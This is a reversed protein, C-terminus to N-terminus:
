RWEHKPYRRSLESRLRPYHVEWFRPLDDTIQVTRMNPALIDLLLKARGGAINLAESKLDYLDQIRARGKAPLGPRYEIRMRRGKPLMIQAPAMQDVFQRDQPSLQQRAAELCSKAKVARFSYEGACLRRHIAQRDQESYTPLQREPFIEALWRVRAIWAEVDDDWGPLALKGEDLRQAIVEAAVTVDPQQRISEEMLLGLCSLTRRSVVQQLKEDWSIDDSDVWEDPFFEWLWEERCGSALGISLKSSQLGSSAIGERIEAVILLPEDRAVSDKSLEAYRGDALLCLLTGADRRKAIRDPFARLLCQLFAIERGEEDRTPWSARQALRSYEGADRWVDRAAGAHIGLSQCTELDFRGDRAADLLGFLTFFDSQPLAEARSLQRADQRRQRRQEGGGSRGTILPRGAIIAAALACHRFCGAQAGLWMLMSLRPHAPFPLLQRGLDSLGGHNKRLIGLEELLRQAGTIAREPPAEFWPFAAPDHFGFANSLMLTEALDVRQIEPLSRSPKANHELESWLRWCSGPAERGARGARQDASDRAIPRTELMNVGRVADYRNSRAQGSDIVIRVGPITLSTEAINTAIIIKRKDAPAMVQHQEEPPMEGYLPLVSVSAAGCLRRCEDATQRIEYVGPMFILIDGIEGSAIIQRAAMAAASTVPQRPAPPLYSTTVPYCRGDAHIHPCGDLYAQLPEAVITASMVVLRLDPRYCQRCERALALGLDVHLSREHFEDFIIAGIGRLARDGQLMRPLIGETIFLIRTDAGHCREFRTQYGVLGGPKEGLEEAVREALMRAALRRPQLVLIREGAPLLPLMMRPIQTSKGSGTPATLVVQGSARLAALFSAEIDYIPLRPM